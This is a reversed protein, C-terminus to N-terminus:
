KSLPRGFRLSTATYGLRAYFAHADTLTNNCTVEVLVCGRERFFAEAANVLRRGIGQGRASEDVVLATLRGVPGARHLVPTIHLTAIGLLPGGVAGPAPSGVLAREGSALFASIRASVEGVTWKYGLVELLRAVEPADAMKLTRVTISEGRHQNMQTMQGTVFIVNLYCGVPVHNALPSTAM